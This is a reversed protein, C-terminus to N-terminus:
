RCDGVIPGAWPGATWGPVTWQPVTWRTVTWPNATRPAIIKGPGCVLRGPGAAPRDRRFPGSRRLHRGCRTSTSSTAARRSGPRSPLTTWTRSWDADGVVDTELGFSREDRMLQESSMGITPGQAHFAYWRLAQAIQQPPAPHGHLVCGPTHGAPLGQGQLCAQCLTVVFTVCRAAQNLNRPM